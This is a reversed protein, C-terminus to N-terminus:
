EDLCFVMRQIKPQNVFICYGNDQLLVYHFYEDRHKMIQNKFVIKPIAKKSIFNVYWLIWGKLTYSETTKPINVWNHYIDTSNLIILNEDSWFFHIHM